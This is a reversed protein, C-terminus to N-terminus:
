AHTRDSHRKRQEKITRNHTKTTGPPCFRNNKERDIESSPVSIALDESLIWPGIRTHHRNKTTKKGAPLGRGGTNPMPQIATTNRPQLYAIAVFRM